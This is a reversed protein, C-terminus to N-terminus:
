FAYDTDQLTRSRKYNNLVFLIIRRDTESGPLKKVERGAHDAVNANHARVVRHVLDEV